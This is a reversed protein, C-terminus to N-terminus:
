ICACWLPFCGRAIGLLICVRKMGEQHTEQAFYKCEWPMRRRHLTLFSHCINELSHSQDHSPFIPILIKESKKPTIQGKLMFRHISICKKPISQSIFHCRNVEVSKLLAERKVFNVCSGYWKWDWVICFHTSWDM